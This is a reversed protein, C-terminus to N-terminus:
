EFIGAEGTISPLRLFLIIGLISQLCPFFVGMIIGQNAKGKRNPNDDDSGSDEDFGLKKNVVEGWPANQHSNDLGSNDHRDNVEIDFQKKPQAIKFEIEKSEIPAQDFVHPQGVNSLSVRNFDSDGPQSHRSSFSKDIASDDREDSEEDM